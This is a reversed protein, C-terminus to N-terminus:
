NVGFDFIREAEQLKSVLKLSDSNFAVWDNSAFLKTAMQLSIGLDRAARNIGVAGVHTAFLEHLKAIDEPGMSYEPAAEPDFGLIAQREWDNSEKGIHQTALMRVHCRRTPGRDFYDGNLFKSEPHLHYDSLDEAYSRLAATPVPNGTERDFARAM